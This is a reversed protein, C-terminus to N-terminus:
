FEPHYDVPEWTGGAEMQEKAEQLLSLVESRDVPCTLTGYAALMANISQRAAEMPSPGDEPDRLGGIPRPEDEGSYKAFIKPFDKRMWNRITTYAKMGGLDLAIERYSRYSGDTNIHKRARIYKRFVVRFESTKLPLGHTLNAQASIWYAERETIDLITADVWEEGIKDLAALRHWGSILVMSNNIWVVEVPPMEIGSAYAKAYRGITGPDLKKRTQFRPDRLISQVQVSQSSVNKIPDIM